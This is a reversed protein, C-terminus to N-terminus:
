EGVKRASGNHDCHRRLADVPITFRGGTKRGPLEGAKIQARVWEASRGLMAAAEKPSVFVRAPMPKPEM